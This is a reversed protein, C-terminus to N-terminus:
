FTNINNDLWQLKGEYAQKLRAVAETYSLSEDQNTTRNIPWMQINLKDSETLTSAIKDIYAPIGSLAAKYGEWREKILKRFEKDQFMRYVYYKQGMSVYNYKEKPIFTGWDFDWVPGATLKGDKDKYTYASKPQNIESNQALENVLWWDVFSGPEIYNVYERAAFSAETFLSREFEAVYNYMYDFQEQSVEDPDKFQWPVNHIETKFKFAEDYWLDCEMLFGGDEAINVRNKDVKIQECLYYNGKHEGNLILEVFKGSPTWALATCRAIEFAVDNRILTRDMWNALLCWRKHKKIGLIESKSDLKMAYPKKPFQTWTSNGRGKVSLRGKYDVSGDPNYITVAAGEMWEEKSVIPAAGPTDLVVVPLGTNLGFVSNSTIQFANSCIAVPKGAADETELAFYAECDYDSSVSLDRLVAAYSGESVERVDELEFFVSETVLSLNKSDFSANSPNLRFPVITSAGFGLKVPRASSLTISSPVVFWLPLTYSTGDALTIIVTNAAKSVQIQSVQGASNDITLSTDDTFYIVVTDGDQEVERIIKNERIVRQICDAVSELNSVRSELRELREEVQQCSSFVGATAIFAALFLKLASSNTAM